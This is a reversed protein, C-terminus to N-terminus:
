EHERVRWGALAGCLLVFVEPQVNFQCGFYVSLRLRGRCSLYCNSVLLRSFYIFHCVAVEM